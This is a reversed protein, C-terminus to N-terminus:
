KQTALAKAWGARLHKEFTGKVIGNIIKYYPFKVQYPADANFRVLLKLGNSRTRSGDKKPKIRGATFKGRDAYKEATPNSYNGRRWIGYVGNIEKKFNRPDSLLKEIHKNEGPPGKKTLRGKKNGAGKPVPISRKKARRTGGDIQHQLYEYQDPLISVEAVWHRKTAFEVSFARRTFPTHTILKTKTQKILEKKANKATNTLAWAVAQPVQSHGFVAVKKILDDVNGVLAVPNHSNVIM